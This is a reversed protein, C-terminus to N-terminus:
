AFCRQKLYATSILPTWAPNDVPHKLLSPPAKACFRLAFKMPRQAVNWALPLLCCHSERVFDGDNGACCGAHPCGRCPHERAFAGVYHDGVDQLVFASLHGIGNPGRRPEFREIHGLLLAPSGNHGSGGLM